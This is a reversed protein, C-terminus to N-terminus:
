EDDGKTPTTGELQMALEEIRKLIRTTSDLIRTGLTAFLVDMESATEADEMESDDAPPTAPKSSAHLAAWTGAGCKGDAVLGHNAQFAKVATETMRGFAGDATLDFDCLGCDVSHRNLSKQLYEAAEGRAGIECVPRAGSDIMEDETQTGDPVPGPLPGKITTAQHHWPERKVTEWLGSARLLDHADGWDLRGHSTLDVAYVYGIGDPADGQAMHWSGLFTKGGRRGIIRDPWAAMNFGPEKNKWGDYLYQQAGRTRGASAIRLHDRLRRSARYARSLRFTLLPELLHVAEDGDDRFGELYELDAQYDPYTM